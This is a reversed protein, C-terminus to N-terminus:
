DNVTLYYEEMKDYLAKGFIDTIASQLFRFVPIAKLNGLTVADNCISWREYNLATMGNSFTTTRIPYLYCSAPKRFTTKGELFAAEVGCKCINHNDYYSYVCDKNGVLPTVWENGDLEKFGQKDICQRNQESLIYQYHKYEEEFSCAEATTIPAGADGEICCIGKCKELDCCFNETFLTEAILFNDIEIIM